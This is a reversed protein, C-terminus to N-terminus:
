GLKPAWDTVYRNLDEYTAQFFEDSKRYPDALEEDGDWKGLLMTKGAAEPAIEAVAQKHGHEMVIILDASAAMDRTFQRASHELDSVGDAELLRRMQKDIGHGVVAGLGASSINKSPLQQKLLKEVAPSRCINGVCVILLNNIM